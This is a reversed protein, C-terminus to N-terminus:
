SLKCTLKLPLNVKEIYPQSPPKEKVMDKIAKEPEEDKNLIKTSVTDKGPYKGLNEKYQDTKPLVIDICDEQVFPFDQPDYEIIHPPVDYECDSHYDPHNPDM